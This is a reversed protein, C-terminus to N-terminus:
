RREGKEIKCFSRRYYIMGGENFEKALTGRLKESFSKDAIIQEVFGMISLMNQFDRADCRPEKQTWGSVTGNAARYMNTIALSLDLSRTKRDLNASQSIDSILSVFASIVQRAVSLNVRYPM